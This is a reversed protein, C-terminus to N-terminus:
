VIVRGTPGTDRSQFGTQRAGQEKMDGDATEIQFM